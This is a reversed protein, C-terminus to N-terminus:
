KQIATICSKLTKLKSLGHKFQLEDKFFYRYLYINGCLIKGKKKQFANPNYMSDSEAVSNYDIAFFMRSHSNNKPM